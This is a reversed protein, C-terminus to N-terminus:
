AIGQDVLEALADADVGLLEAYVEANHTGPRRPGGWRVEGPTESFLPLPRVGKVPGAANEDDHDVFLERALFQPEKM